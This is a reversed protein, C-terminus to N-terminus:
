SANGFPIHGIRCRCFARAMRWLSYSFPTTLEQVSCNAALVRLECNRCPLVPLICMAHIAMSCRKSFRYDTYVVVVSFWLSSLSGSTNFPTRNHLNILCPMSYGEFPSVAKFPFHELYFTPKTFPNHGRNPAKYCPCRAYSCECTNDPGVWSHSTCPM